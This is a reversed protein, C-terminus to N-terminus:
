ESDEANIFNAAAAIREDCRGKKKADFMQIYEVMKGYLITELVELDTIPLGVIGACEEQFDGNTSSTVINALCGAVDFAVRQMQM